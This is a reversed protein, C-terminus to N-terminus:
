LNIRTRPGWSRRWQRRNMSKTAMEDPVKRFSCPHQREQAQQQGTDVDGRDDNMDETGDSEDGHSGCSDDDAAGPGDEQDITESAAVHQVKFYNKADFCGLPFAVKHTDFRRFEGQSSAVSALTITFHTGGGM